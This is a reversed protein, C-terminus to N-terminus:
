IFKGPCLGAESASSMHGGTLVIQNTPAISLAKEIATGLEPVREGCLHAHDVGAVSSLELCINLSLGVAYLATKKKM